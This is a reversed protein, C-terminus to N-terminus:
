SFFNKSLGSPEMIVSLKGIRIPATRPSIPVIQPLPLNRATLNTDILYAWTIIPALAGTLKVQHVAEYLELYGMKATETVSFRTRIASNIENAITNFDKGIPVRISINITIIQLILDSFYLRGQVLPSRPELSTSLLNKQAMSLFSGDSNCVFCNMAALQTGTGDPTIDPIAVVVINSGVTEIVANEFDSRSVLTTQNELFKSVLGSVRNFFDATTEEDKGNAVAVDIWMSDLELLQQLTNVQGTIGNPKTGTEIARSDVRCFGYNAPNKTDTLAPIRLDTITEFIVDNVLFRHGRPIIYDRDYVNLLEFRVTAIAFDGVQRIFGLSEVVRSAIVDLLDVESEILRSIALAQTEGLLTLMSSASFDFLRGNSRALVDDKFQQYYQQTTLNLSDPIAM